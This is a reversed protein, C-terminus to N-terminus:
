GDGSGQLQAVDPPQWRLTWQGQPLFLTQRVISRFRLQLLAKRQIAEFGKGPQVEAEAQACRKATGVTPQRPAVSLRGPDVDVTYLGLPVKSGKVTARDIQRCNTQAQPSLIDYLANSLLIYVGYQKTAAELRSAMNVNPSLYSADIKFESGIAGEIAWGVHLGFGMKVRWGTGMREIIEPVDRYEALVASKNIEAIIKVFSVLAMDSLRNMTANDILQGTVRGEKEVEPFKWVLLFADGINKNACGSYQDVTGHVIEAIQNVFVMIKEKLIETADTFNRIDCFGFIAQLKRGDIMANVGGDSNRMNKAIIGAGAEGFGLALLGGIKIITKELMATEMTDNNGKRGSSGAFFSKLFKFPSADDHEVLGSMEERQAEHRLSEETMGAAALPKNRIKNMKYMMREIPQVVLNNADRNVLLTGLLLVFCVFLTRCINFSAEMRAGPRRDFVAMIQTIKDAACDTAKDNNSISSKVETQNCFFATYFEREAPRLLSDSCSSFGLCPIDQYIRGDLLTTQYLPLPLQFFVLYSPNAGTDGIGGKRHYNIYFLASHTYVRKWTEQMDYRKAATAYEAVLELNSKGSLFRSMYNEDSLLPLVLTLGLVMLVIKRNTLETLKKGVESETENNGKEASDGSAESGEEQLDGDEDDDDDLDRRELHEPLNNMKRSREYRQMVQITMNKYLKAVRILRVLRIVRLMRAVKSGAKGARSAKVLQSNEDSDGSEAIMHLASDVWTLDVVLSLVSVLDLYFFLHFIYGRKGICSLIIEVSFCLLVMCTVVDFATDAKVSTALIRIDGGFLAYITLIFLFLETIKNDVIQGCLRRVPPPIIFFSKLSRQQRDGTTCVARQKHAPSAASKEAAGRKRIEQQASREM